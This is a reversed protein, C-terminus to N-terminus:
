VTEKTILNFETILQNRYEKDTSVKTIDNYRGADSLIKILAAFIDM